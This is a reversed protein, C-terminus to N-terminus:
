EGMKERQRLIEFLIVSAAVSANLSSIQGKMPIFTIFDCKKKLLRSIGRGEGGIVVALPGTMNEDWLRSDGQMDAGLVWLGLEKLKDVTQALNPVRAVPVYEVAGSSVKAVTANLQVGRRKPIIIGHVGVAEASRMIAGFNHPDEIEDLIVILPDEGRSQAFSILDEVEAYQYPAAEAVVGQHRGEALKELCTRDVEQFPIGRAKVLSIIERISGEKSGKGIFVKNIARGSKLAELVSNRGTIFDAV